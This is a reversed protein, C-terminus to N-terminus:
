RNRSEVFSLMHYTDMAGRAAFGLAFGVALAM